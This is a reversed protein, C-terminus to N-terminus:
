NGFSLKPMAARAAALRDITSESPGEDVKAHYAEITFNNPLEVAQGPEIGAVLERLMALLDNALHAKVAWDDGGKVDKDSMYDLSLNFPLNIRGETPHVYGINLYLKAKPKKADSATNQTTKPQEALAALQALRLETTNGTTAM